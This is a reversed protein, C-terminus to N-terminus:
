MLPTFHCNSALKLQRACAHPAFLATFTSARTGNQLDLHSVDVLIVHSRGGEDLLKRLLLVSQPSALVHRAGLDDLVGLLKLVVGNSAQLNISAPM